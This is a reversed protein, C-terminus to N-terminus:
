NHRAAIDFIRSFLLKFQFQLPIALSLYPTLAGRAGAFTARASSAKVETLVFHLIGCNHLQHSISKMSLVYIYVYIYKKSMIGYCIHLIYYLWQYNFDNYHDRDTM